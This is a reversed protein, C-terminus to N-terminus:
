VQEFVEQNYSFSNKDLFKILEKLGEDEKDFDIIIKSRM